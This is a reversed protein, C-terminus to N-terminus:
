LLGNAYIKKIDIFFINKNELLNWTFFIILNSKYNEVTKPSRKTSLNKLFRDMLTINDKNIKETNEKSTIIRRYTERGSM